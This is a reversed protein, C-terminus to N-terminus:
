FMLFIFALLIFYITLAVTIYTSVRIIEFYTGIRGLLENLRMIVDNVQENNMLAVDSIQAKMFEDAEGKIPNNVLRAFGYSVGIYLICCIMIGGLGILILGSLLINPDTARFNCISVIAGIIATLVMIACYQIWM